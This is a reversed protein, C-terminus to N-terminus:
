RSKRKRKGFLRKGLSFAAVGRRVSRVAAAADLAVDDAEEQLVDVLAALNSLRLEAADTARVIKLRIDKSTGVLADAETRITGLLGRVDDVAPIALQKFFGLTARVGLASLVAAFAVVIAALAIVLLSLATVVAAWTPIM